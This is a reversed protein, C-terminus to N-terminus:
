FSGWAMRLGLVPAYIVNQFLPQGEMVSVIAQIGAYGTLRMARTFGFGVELDLEGFLAFCDPTNLVPNASMGGIGTWLNLAGVLAGLHVEQGTIVGVFAAGFSPGASITNLSVAFGGIRQGDRNVGYGYGGSFATQLGFNSLSPDVLEQGWTVGGAGGAFVVSLPLVGLVAALVIIRFRNM